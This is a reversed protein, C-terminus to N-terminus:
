EDRSFLWKAAIHFLGFVSATTTTIYTILVSDALEFERWKFGQMITILIVSVIWIVILFFLSSLIIIQFANKRRAHRTAQELKQIEAEDRARQVASLAEPYNKSLDAEEDNVALPDPEIGAEEAQSDAVRNIPEFLKFLEPFRKKLQTSEPENM